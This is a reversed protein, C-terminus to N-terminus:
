GSIEARTDSRAPQRRREAHIGEAFEELMKANFAPLDDPKRSTVLGMDAVVERDVWDAGANRLDTQLSPWSTLTRNRVVGAEALLWPGHCIAAIPKGANFMSRVFQVARTDMRLHDPNMVGGPLVLADFTDPSAQALSLDVPFEDSWNGHQWAKIKGTKPSILTTTAGADDLAQRPVTLESQEVGDTALIAVRKGSLKDSAM